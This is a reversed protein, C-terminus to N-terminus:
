ISPRRDISVVQKVILSWRLQRGASMTNARSKTKSCSQQHLNRHEPIRSQKCTSRKSDLLRKPM